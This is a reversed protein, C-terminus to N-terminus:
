RAAAGIAWWPPFPAFVRCNPCEAAVMRATLVDPEFWVDLSSDRIAQVALAVRDRREFLRIPDPEGLMGSGAQTVSLLDAQPL